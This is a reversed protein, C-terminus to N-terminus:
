KFHTLIENRLKEALEKNEFIIVQIKGPNEFFKEQFNQGFVDETKESKASVSNIHKKMQQSFFIQHVIDGYIVFDFSSHYDIGTKVNYGVQRYILALAKDLFSNSTSTIYGGHKGLFKLNHYQQKSFSMAWFLNNQHTICTNGPFTKIEDVFLSLMKDAFDHYSEFSFSITKNKLNTLDIGEAGINEFFKKSKEIWEKHLSYERNEKSIIKHKDMENLAKHVAQYSITLGHNKQLRNYIVKASLPWENALVSIISDKVSSTQAGLKPITLNFTM